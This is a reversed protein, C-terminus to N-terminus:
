SLSQDKFIESILEEFRRMDFRAEPENKNRYKRFFNELNAWVDNKFNGVQAQM